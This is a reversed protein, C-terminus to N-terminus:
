PNAPQPTNTSQGLREYYRQVLGKFREPVPDRDIPVLAEDSERKAVEEGLRKQLELLPAHLSTRVLDWNPAESHRQSEARLSRAQERIRSVEAQLGPDGVLTEVDRLRDAFDRYGEGSIPGGQGGPGSNMGGRESSQNSGLNPFPSNPSAGGPGGLTPTGTGQGSGEGPTEGPMPTTGNPGGAQPTGSPSAGPGATPKGTGNPTGAGPSGGSEAPETPMDGEASLTGAGQGTPNPTTGEGPSAGNEGPQPNPDDSPAGTGTSGANEDTDSGGPQGRDLERGLLQALESVESRARKLAEVENGLVGEAARDVGAQLRELAQRAQTEAQRAEPVFGRQLLQPVAELAPELKDDRTQRLTDYLQRSLLPEATESEQVVQRAQELLAGVASRQEQFERSLDQESKEARLGPTTPQQESETLAQSLEAQREGAARAATRLDRMAEAFRASTQERFEQQLRNLDREARTSSSLAQSLRGEELAETADVMRRRTQELQERAERFDEQRASQALQERLEDNDRLLQEQEDRLRKLQRQVEEREAETQALRLAADLERLKEQLDAQRRALEKLRNLTSLDEQQATQGAASPSSQNQYRNRNDALELENLQQENPSAGGGSGGGAQQGQMIQHERARLKLLQQYAGQEATAATSLSTSSEAQPQELATEAATMQEVALNAMRQRAAGPLHVMLDLLKTKNTAQAERIVDVDAAPPPSADSSRRLLNWTAAVIEKQVKLLEELQNGAGQPAAGAQAQPAGGPPADIQRFTEEFPRVEAFFLDGTTRRPEGDPGRDIAYLHYSLLDDPVVRLDELAQLLRVSQPQTTLLDRGLPLTIPERGAVELVVGYEMLGYDDVVRGELVLEELPSLRVDKGPFALEMRPPENRVVEIRLREPDRNRRDKDDVLSLEYARSETPVFKAKWLLPDAPDRALEIAGPVDSVTEASTDQDGAPPTDAPLWRASVVPKNVRCEILVQSREVVSVRTANEWRKPPQGTYEPLTVVVDTRLLTPLDYLTVRYDRTM